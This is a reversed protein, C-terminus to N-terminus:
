CLLPVSKFIGDRRFVKWHCGSKSLSCFGAEKLHYVTLSSKDAGDVGVQGGKTGRRLLVLGSRQCSRQVEEVRLRLCEEMHLSAEEKTDKPMKDERYLIM